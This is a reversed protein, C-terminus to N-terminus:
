AFIEPSLEKKIGPGDLHTSFNGVKVDVGMHSIECDPLVHVPIGLAHLRLCFSTDEGWFRHQRGRVANTGLKGFFSHIKTNKVDMSDGTYWDDPNDSMIRQLPAKKIKCFGTPVNWAVFNGNANKVPNKEADLKLFCGYFDWSNKCPYAAGIVDEDAQILRVMDKVEWGMDSDIFILDTYDGELFTAAIANRARDVYSDGALASYAISMDTRKALTMLTQSIAMIYNVWGRGEYFPTAILAKNM